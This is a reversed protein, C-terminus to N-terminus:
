PALTIPRKEALSRRIADIVVVSPRLPPRCTKLM